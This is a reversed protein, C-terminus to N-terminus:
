GLAGCPMSACATCCAAQAEADAGAQPLLPERKQYGVIDSPPPTTGTPIPLLRRGTAAWVPDKESVGCHRLTTTNHRHTDAALAERDSGLSPGQRIDWSTQPHHNCTHPAQCRCSGVPTSIVPWCSCPCFCADTTPATPCSTPAADITDTHRDTQQDTNPATTTTETPHESAAANSSSGDPLLPYDHM